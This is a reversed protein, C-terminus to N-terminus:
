KKIKALEEEVVKMDSWPTKAGHPGMIFPDTGKGTIIILDKPNSSALAKQIAKKRDLIIESKRSKIGSAVAQIIQLPDEDYPDEDTLIIQDCYREAIEGLVKRKWQDRGGGTGGLVCILKGHRNIEALERRCTEYVQRLSDPTHAYDVIINQAREMRGPITKIKAVAVRIVEENINLSKALTAAALINYKNFDGPLNTELNWNPWDALRFKIKQEIDFALFKEAEKDDGNVVLIKEFKSSKELSRVIELKAGLYKQYSGHSEIHEPALNTFILGDLDIFKHRFQKVGESTMEILAYQCKATVAQRLFKQLFFRGPMTMKHLNPRNEEAIKFRITSSLATKYGAENLIANLIELTTSKGKTGTVAIVKIARSPFGYLIAGMLALKYHYISRFINSM